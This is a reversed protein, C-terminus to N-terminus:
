AALLESFDIGQATVVFQLEIIEASTTPKIYIRYVARNENRDADTTLTALSYENIGRRSMYDALIPDILQRFERDLVTDGPEFTLYRTSTAVIKKLSLLM